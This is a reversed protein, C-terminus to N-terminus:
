TRGRASPSREESMWWHRISGSGVGVLWGVVTLRGLGLRISGVMECNSKCGFSSIELQLRLLIRGLHPQRLNYLNHNAPRRPPVLHMAWGPTPIAQHVTRLPHRSSGQQLRSPSPDPPLHCLSGDVIPPHSTLTLQQTPPHLPTLPDTQDLKGSYLVGIIAFLSPWIQFLILTPWTLSITPACGVGTQILFRDPQYVIHTAMMLAPVGFSLIYDFLARNRRDRRTIATARPSVISALFKTICMTSALLGVEGALSIKVSIDCLVPAKNLDDSFWVIQNVQIVWDLLDAM